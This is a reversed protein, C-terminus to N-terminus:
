PVRLLRPAREPSPRHQPLPQPEPGSAQRRPSLSSDIHGNRTERVCPVQHAQHARPLLAGLIRVGGRPQRPLRLDDRERSTLCIVVVRRCNRMPAPTAAPLAAAAPASPRGSASAARASMPLTEGRRGRRRVVQEGLQVPEQPREREQVVAVDDLHLLRRVIGLVLVVGPQM